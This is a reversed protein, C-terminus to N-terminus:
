KVYEGSMKVIRHPGDKPFHRDYEKASIRATKLTKSDLFALGNRDVVAYQYEPRFRKNKPKKM